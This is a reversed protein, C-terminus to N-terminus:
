ACACARSCNAAFRVAANATLPMSTPAAMHAMTQSVPDGYTQCMEYDVRLLQEMAEMMARNSVDVHDLTSHFRAHGRWLSFLHPRGLSRNPLCASLLLARVAGM